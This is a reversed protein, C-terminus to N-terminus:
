DDEGVAITSVPAATPPLAVVAAHLIVDPPPVKLVVACVAFGSVTVYVGAAFKEPVTIRVNVVFAGAFQGGIDAVRVIVIFGAGVTEAPGGSVMQEFPVAVIAPEYPPPALEPVQVM